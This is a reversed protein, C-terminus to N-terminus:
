LGLVTVPWTDVCRQLFDASAEHMAQRHVPDTLARLRWDPADLRQLVCEGALLGRLEAPLVGDAPTRAGVRHSWDRRWRQLRPHARATAEFDLGVLTLQRGPQRLWRTLADLVEPEGLPWDVFDSDILWASRPGSAPDDVPALACLAARLRDVCGSRGRIVAPAPGDAPPVAPKADDADHM